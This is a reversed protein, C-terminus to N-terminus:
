VGYLMFTKLTVMEDRIFILCSFFNINPLKIIAAGLFRPAPRSLGAALLRGTTNRSCGCIEIEIM